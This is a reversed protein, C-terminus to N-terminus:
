VCRLQDVVGDRRQRLACIRLSTEFQVAYVQAADPARGMHVLRQVPGLARLQAAPPLAANAPAPLVLAGPVGAARKLYASLLASMGGADPVNELHPRRTATVEEPARIPIGFVRVTYRGKFIHMSVATADIRAQRLATDWAIHIDRGQRTVRGVGPRDLCYAAAPGELRCFFDRMPGFRWIVADSAPMRILWAGALAVPVATVSVTEPQAAAPFSFCLLLLSALLRHMAAFSRGVCPQPTLRKPWIAPSSCHGTGPRNRIKDNVRRYIDNVSGGHGLFGGGTRSRSFDFDEADEERVAGGGHPLDM